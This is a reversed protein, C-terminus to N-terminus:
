GDQGVVEHAGERGIAIEVIAGHGAVDEDVTITDAIGHTLLDNVLLQSLEVADDSHLITTIVLCLLLGEGLDRQDNHVLTNTLSEELLSRARVALVPDVVRRLTGVDVCAENLLRLDNIALEIEEEHRVGDSLTTDLRRM